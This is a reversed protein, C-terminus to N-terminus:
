FVRGTQAVLADDFYGFQKWVKYRDNIYRNSTGILKLFKEIQKRDNIEIENSIHIKKTQKDFRKVNFQTVTSFEFENEFVNKLQEILAKSKLTGRIKPYYKVKKHKRLFVLSFDTDFIGRVCHLLFRRDSFFIDPISVENKPSKMLGLVKTKFDFVAKSQFQINCSNDSFNKYMSTKRGYLKFILPKLVNEYYFIENDLSGTFCIKFIKRPPNKAVFDSLCGDGIQVGTEYALERTMKKPLCTKTRLDGKNFIIKKSDLKVM